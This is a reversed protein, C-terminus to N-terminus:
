RRDGFPRILIAEGEVGPEAHIREVVDVNVFVFGVKVPSYLM